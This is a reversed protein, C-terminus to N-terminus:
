RAAMLVSPLRKGGPAPRSRTLLNGRHWFGSRQPFVGPSRSPAPSLQPEATRRRKASPDLRTLYPIGRHGPSPKHLLMNPKPSHAGGAEASGEAPATVHSWNGEGVSVKGKAKPLDSQLDQNM